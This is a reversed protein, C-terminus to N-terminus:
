MAYAVLSAVVAVAGIATTTASNCLDTDCCTWGSTGDWFSCTWETSCAVTLTTCDSYSYESNSCRDYISSCDVENYDTEWVCDGIYYTGVRCTIASATAATAALVFLKM